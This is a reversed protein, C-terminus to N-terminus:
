FLPEVTTDGSKKGAGVGRGQARLDMVMGLFYEDHIALEVVGREVATEGGTVISTTGRALDM